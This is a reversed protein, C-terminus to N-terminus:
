EVVGEDKLQEMVKWAEVNSPNGDLGRPPLHLLLADFKSIKLKEREELAAKRINKVSHIKSLIQVKGEKNSDSPLAQGVYQSNGYVEALDLFTFGASIAQQVSQTCDQKFLATGCGFAQLPLKKGGRLTVTPASM